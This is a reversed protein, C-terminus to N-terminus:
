FIHTTDGYVTLMVFQTEPMAPKLRRVCEIGSQGPLNIDVLGIDPKEQPLKAIASEASDHVSVCRFGDAGNIWEHLIQRISADDEVISVLTSLPEEIPKKRTDDSPTAPWDIIGIVDGIIELNAAAGPQHRFIGKNGPWPYCRDRM